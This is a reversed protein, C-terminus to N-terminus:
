INTHKSNPYISDLICDITTELNNTGDNNICFHCKNAIAQQPTQCSIWKEAQERTIGDRSMIRQIRLEEPAVVCVIYDFDIRHDFGAEFLIASELWTYGSSLFDAAVAPHVIDNITQKNAESELLFKTLKSKQLTGGQFIDEGVALSLETQLESSTAMLRKAAADCDYVNIGKQSLIHCVYSKGSGIGGTIAIQPHRSM